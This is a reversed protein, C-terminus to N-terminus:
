QKMYLICLNRKKYTFYHRLISPKILYFGSCHDFSISFKFPVCLKAELDISNFAFKLFFVVNNEWKWGKYLLCSWAMTIGLACSSISFHFGNYVLLNQMGSLEEQLSPLSCGEQHNSVSVLKYYINNHSFDKEKIIDHTKQVCWCHKTDKVTVSLMCM